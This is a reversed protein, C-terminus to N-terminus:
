RHFQKELFEFSRRIKRKIETIFLNKKLKPINKKKFKKTTSRNFEM